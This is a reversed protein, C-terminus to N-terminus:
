LRFNSIPCQSNLNSFQDSAIRDVPRNALRLKRNGNDLPLRRLIQEAPLVAAVAALLEAVAALESRAQLRPRALTAMKLSDAAARPTSLPTRSAKSAHPKRKSTDPLVIRLGRPCM